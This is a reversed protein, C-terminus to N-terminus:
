EPEALQSTLALVQERERQTVAEQNEEPQELLELRKEVSSMARYYDDEVTQDHVRAYIM